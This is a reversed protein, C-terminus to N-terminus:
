TRERDPDVSSRLIKELAETIQAATVAGTIENRAQAAGRLGRVCHSITVKHEAVARREGKDASALELLRRAASLIQEASPRLYERGDLAAAIEAFVFPNGMAERAVAVGACGTERMMRLADAGSTVDGNGFVPIKVRATVEGIVAPDIGPTYFQERTRAHVCVAAAGAAEAAAACEAANKHEADWGARIKVTVPVASGSVAARVLDYIKEPAKMLASGEGCSVVKKVPCGMNIDIAAPLPGCFGRYAGHSVLRAAERLFEPEAGFLQVATPLSGSLVCLDATKVPASPRGLQEYVLAKASVMETVAYEAGCEACLQRMSRDTVGAMPALMLGHALSIGGFEM